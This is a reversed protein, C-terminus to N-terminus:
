KRSSPAKSSRELEIILETTQQAGNKFAPNSTTTQRKRRILTQTMQLLKEEDFIELVEYDGYAKAAYCRKLQDDAVTAMNPIFIAPLGLLVAETVSNYGGALVAFDFARYYMSSPFDSLTSDALSHV